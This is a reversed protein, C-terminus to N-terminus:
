LTEEIDYLESRMDDLIRCKERSWTNNCIIETLKLAENESMHKKLVGYTEIAQRFTDVEHYVVWEDLKNDRIEEYLNREM